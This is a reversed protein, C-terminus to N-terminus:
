ITWVMKKQIKRSTYKRGQFVLSCLRWISVEERHKKALELIKQEMLNKWGQELNRIQEGIVNGVKFIRGFLVKTPEANKHDGSITSLVYKTPM